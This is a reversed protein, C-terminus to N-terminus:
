LLSEARGGGGDQVFRLLHTLIPHGPRQSTPPSPTPSQGSEAEGCDGPSKERPVRQDALRQGETGWSGM